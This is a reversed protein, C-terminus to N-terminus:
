GRVRGAPNALKAKKARRVMEVSVAPVVRLEVLWDASLRITWCTRGQPQASCAPAILRDEVAGELVRLRSRDM